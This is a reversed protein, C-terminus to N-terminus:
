ISNENTESFIREIMEVFQKYEYFKIGATVACAYCITNTPSFRMVRNDVNLINPKEDFYVPNINFYNEYGYQELISFLEILENKDKYRVLFQMPLTSTYKQYKLQKQNIQKLHEIHRKFRAKEELYAKEKEEISKRIKYDEEFRLDKKIDEKVDKFNYKSVGYDDRTRPTGCIALKNVEPYEDIMEIRM